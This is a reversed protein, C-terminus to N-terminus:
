LTPNGVAHDKIKRKIEEEVERWDNLSMREAGGRVACAVNTLRRIQEPLTPSAMGEYSLFVCRGEEVPNIFCSM